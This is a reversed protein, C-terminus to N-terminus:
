TTKEVRMNGREDSVETDERAGKFVRPRHEQRLTLSFTECEYLTVTFNYNYWPMKVRLIYFSNYMCSHLKIQAWVFFTTNGTSIKM